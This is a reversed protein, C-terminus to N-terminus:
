ARTGSTVPGNSVTLVGVGPAALWGHRSLAENPATMALAARRKLDLGGIGSHSDGRNQHLRIVPNMSGLQTLPRHPHHEVVLARDESAAALLLKSDPLATWEGREKVALVDHGLRRLEVSVAPAHMEDLLLRM